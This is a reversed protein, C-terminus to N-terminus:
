EGNRNIASNLPSDSLNENPFTETFFVLADEVKLGEVDPAQDPGLAVYSLNFM